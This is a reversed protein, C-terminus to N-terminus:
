VRLRAHQEAVLRKLPGPQDQLKRELFSSLGARAMHMAVLTDIPRALETGLRDGLTATLNAYDTFAAGLAAIAHELREAAQERTRALEDVSRVDTM